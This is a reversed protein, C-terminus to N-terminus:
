KFNEKLYLIKRGVDSGNGEYTNGIYVNNGSNVNITINVTDGKHNKEISDALAVLAAISSVILAGLNILADVSAEFRFAPKGDTYYKIKM